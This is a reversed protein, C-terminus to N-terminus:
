DIHDIRFQAQPAEGRGLSVLTLRRTGLDHSYPQVPPTKLSFDRAASAVPTWQLAIEADGARICQVDPPCRSDAVLRLYRLQSHDALTVTEAPQMSFSQGDTIMRASGGAATACAALALSGAFLFVRTISISM